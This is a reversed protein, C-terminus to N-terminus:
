AVATDFFRELVEEPYTKATGFRPHPADGRHIGYLKCHHSAAKGIRAAEQSDIRIGLKNAYGVVTYYGEGNVLAKVQAATDAQQHELTAIKREHDRYALAMEVLADGTSRSQHAADFFQIVELHFTASIWMAYAYVLEKAVFTGLGQKKFIAPIGAISKEVEAALEQAQQTDLWYQPRHRNGEGAAKHLDNLCFRGHDDRRISIDNIKAPLHTVTADTM